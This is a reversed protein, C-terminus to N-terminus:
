PLQLFAPAPEHLIHEEKTKKALFSPPIPFVAPQHPLFASRFQSQLIFTVLQLTTPVVKLSIM